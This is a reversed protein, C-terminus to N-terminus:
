KAAVPVAHTVSFSLQGTQLGGQSLLMLLVLSMRGLEALLCVGIHLTDLRELLFRRLQLPLQCGSPARKSGGQQM